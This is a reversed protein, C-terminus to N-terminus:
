IYQHRQLENVTMKDLPTGTGQIALMEDLSMNDLPCRPRVHLWKDICSRHFVHMCPLRRVEEGNQLREHCIICCEEMDARLTEAPTRLQFEAWRRPQRPARRPQAPSNEQRPNTRDRAPHRAEDPDPPPELAQRLRLNQWHRQVGHALAARAAAAAGSPLRLPPMGTPAAVQMYADVAGVVRVPFVPWHQTRAPLYSWQGPCAALVTAEVGPGVAIPASGLTILARDREGPELQPSFAVSDEEPRVRLGGRGLCKPMHLWRAASQCARDLQLSQPKYGLRLQGPLFSEGCVMCPAAGAIVRLREVYM